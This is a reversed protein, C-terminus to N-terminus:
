FDTGVFRCPLSALMCGCENEPLSDRDGRAIEHGAPIGPLPSEAVSGAQVSYTTVDTSSPKRIDRVRDRVRGM